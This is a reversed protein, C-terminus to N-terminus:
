SVAGGIVSFQFISVVGVMNNLRAVLYCGTVTTTTSEDVRVLTGVKNHAILIAKEGSARLTLTDYAVTHNWSAQFKANGRDFIQIATARLPHFEQIVHDGHNWQFGEISDFTGVVVAAGGDPTFTLTM